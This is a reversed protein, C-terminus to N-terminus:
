PRPPETPNGPDNPPVGSGPRVLDLILPGYTTNQERKDRPAPIPFVILANKIKKDPDTTLIIPGNPDAGIIPNDNDEPRPVDPGTRSVDGGKIKYWIRDFDEKTIFVVSTGDPEGTTYDDNDDDDTGADPNGGDPKGADPKGADPTESDPKSDSSFVNSVWDKFSQWSSKEAPETPQPAPNPRGADPTGADPKAPGPPPNNQRDGMPGFIKSPDKLKQIDAYGDDDQSITGLDIGGIKIRPPADKAPSGTAPKELPPLATLLTFGTDFNLGYKSLTKETIGLKGLANSKYGSIATSGFDLTSGDPAKGPLIVLKSYGMKFSQLTGKGIEEIFQLAGPYSKPDYPNTGITKEDEDSFGDWDSDNVSRTYVLCIGSECRSLGIMEVTEIQKKEECAFVTLLLGSLIMCKGLDIKM